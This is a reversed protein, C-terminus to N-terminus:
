HSPWVSNAAGPAKPGMVFTELSLQRYRWRALTLPAVVRELQEPLDLKLIGRSHRSGFHVRLVCFRMGAPLLASDQPFQGVARLDLFPPCALLARSRVAPFAVVPESWNEM